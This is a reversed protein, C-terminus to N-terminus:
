IIAELIDLYNQNQPFGIVEERARFALGCEDLIKVTVTHRSIDEWYATQTLRRQLMERDIHNKSQSSALWAVIPNCHEVNNEHSCTKEEAKKGTPFAAVDGGKDSNNMRGETHVLTLFLPDDKEDNTKEKIEPISAKEESIEKAFQHNHGNEM